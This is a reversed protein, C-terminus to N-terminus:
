PNNLPGCGEVFTVNMDTIDGAKLNKTFTMSVVTTGSNIMWPGYPPVTTSAVLGSGDKDSGSWIATGAPVWVTSLYKNGQTAWNVSITNINLSSGTSNTITWTAINGSLVPASMTLTGSTCIISQVTVSPLPATAQITVAGDKASAATVQNVLTTQAVYTTQCSTSAGPALPSTGNCQFTGQSVSNISYTISYPSTLSKGGTNTLTYTFTITTGSQTITTPSSTLGVKFRAGSYTVVTATFTNSTVPQSKFVASATGTNIISGADLDTQTVTYSGTCTKTAAPALNGGPCTINVVKNDTLTFPIPLTVNGGNTLVYTYNIVTGVPLNLAPPTPASPSASVTATLIPNQQLPVSLLANNSNIVAGNNASASSSSDISGGADFQAQNPTYTGTCNISAGAALTTSPCTINTVKTDTVSLSNANAGSNNKVVFTYTIPQNPTTAPNPAAGVTLSLATTIVTASAPASSYTTSNYKASATATNTLSGASIDAAKLAYTATCTTSSGPALPSVAGSCNINVTAIKNDSISFPSVLSVNGTNKITYTYTIIAGVAGASTPSATKTLALSPSVSALITHNLAPPFPIGNAVPTATNTMSGADMDAQTITYTGTCTTTSGPTLPDSASSCNTTVKNDNMTIPGIVNGTGTNKLGYTYSIVQGATVYPDPAATISLLILNGAGNGHWSQPVSTVSISVSALITRQSVSTITFADLPVLKVIIPQWQTTVEVTIRDGNQIDAPGYAGCTDNGTPIPLSAGSNDLGRDYGITISDFTNIFGLKKAADEIGTCDEYYPVGNPSDGTASGYRVAQRAATVTSAYIFLLRGTELLGYLLTLLLPLALAFEVMAQATTKQKKISSKTNM